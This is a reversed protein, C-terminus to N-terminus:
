PDMPHERVAQWGRPETSASIVPVNEAPRTVAPQRAAADPRVPRNAYARLIANEREVGAKTPVSATDARPIQATDQQAGALSDAAGMAATSDARTAHLTDLRGAHVTDQHGHATDAAERPHKRPVLTGRLRLTDRETRAVTDQPAQAPEQTTDNV